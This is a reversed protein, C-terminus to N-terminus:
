DNKDIFEKNEASIKKRVKTKKIADIILKKVELVRNRMGRFAKDDLSERVPYDEMQYKKRDGHEDVYSVEANGYKAALLLQAKATKPLDTMLSKDFSKYNSEWKGVRLDKLEQEYEKSLQMEAADDFADSNSFSVIGSYRKYGKKPEELFTRISDGSTLEDIELSHEKFNKVAHVSITKKLANILPNRSPLGKDDHIALVHTYPDFVFEFDFRRSSTNGKSRFETEGSNTNVLENVDDFKLFSGYVVKRAGDSGAYEFESVSFPAFFMDGRLPVAISSLKLKRKKADQVLDGMSKFLKCYGEYGIEKVGVEIPLMQINYFKYIAM